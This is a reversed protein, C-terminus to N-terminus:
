LKPGLWGIDGTRTSRVIRSARSSPTIPSRSAWTGAGIASWSTIAVTCLSSNMSATVRTPSVGPSISRAWPSPVSSLGHKLDMCRAAAWTTPALTSAQRCTHLPSDSCLALM